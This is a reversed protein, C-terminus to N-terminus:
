LLVQRNPAYLVMLCASNPIVNLCKSMHGLASQSKNISKGLPCIQNVLQQSSSPKARHPGSDQVLQWPITHGQYHSRSICNALLSGPIGLISQCGILFTLIKSIYTLLLTTYKIQTECQIDATDKVTELYSITNSFNPVTTVSEQEHFSSFFLFIFCQFSYYIQQSSAKFMAFLKCFEKVKVMVVTTRYRQKNQLM